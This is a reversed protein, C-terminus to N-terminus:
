WVDRLNGGYAYFFNCKKAVRRQEETPKSTSFLKKATELHIDYLKNDKDTM